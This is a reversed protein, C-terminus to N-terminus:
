SSWVPLSSNESGQEALPEHVMIWMEALWGNGPPTGDGLM